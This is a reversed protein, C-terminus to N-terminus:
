VRSRQPARATPHRAEHRARALLAKLENRLVTDRKQYRPRVGSKM